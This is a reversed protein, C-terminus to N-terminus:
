KGRGVYSQIFRRLVESASLGESSRCRAKFRRWLAEDCRFTQRPTKIGKKRGRVKLDKTSTPAKLAELKDQEEKTLTKKGEETGRGSTQRGSLFVDLAKRRAEEKEGM